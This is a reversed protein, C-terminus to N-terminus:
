DEEDDCLGKGHCDDWCDWCDSCYTQLCYPCTYGYESTHTDIDKGCRACSTWQAM